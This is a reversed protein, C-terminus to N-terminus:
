RVIACIICTLLLLGALGACIILFISTSSAGSSGRDTTSLSTTTTSTYAFSETTTPADDVRQQALSAVLPNGGEVEGKSTRLTSMEDGARTSTTLYQQLTIDESVDPAANDPSRFDPHHLYAAIEHAANSGPEDHHPQSSTHFSGLTQLTDIPSVRFRLSASIVIVTAVLLLTALSVKSVSPWCFRKDGVYQDQQGFQIEDGYRKINGGLLPQQQEDINLTQADLMRVVRIAV